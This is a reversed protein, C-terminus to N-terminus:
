RDMVRSVRPGRWDLEAIRRWGPVRRELVSDLSLRSFGVGADNILLM